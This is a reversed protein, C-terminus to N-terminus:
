ILNTNSYLDDCHNINNQTVHECSTQKAHYEQRVQPNLDKASGAQLRQENNATMQLPQAMHPLETKHKVCVKVSQQHQM